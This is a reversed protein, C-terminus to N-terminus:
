RGSKLAETAERARHPEDTIIMDVGLELVRRLDHPENVTWVGISSGVARLRDRVDATLLDHSVHVAPWHQAIARDLMDQEEILFAGAAKPHYAAIERVNEANFSQVIWQVNSCVLLDVVRRVLERAGRPKVEVLWCGGSRLADALKPVVQHSDRLRVRALEAANLVHVRGRGETTRDLTEDHLIVPEGDRSAHVDCEV